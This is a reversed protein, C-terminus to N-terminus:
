WRAGTSRVIHAWPVPLPSLARDTISSSRGVGSSALVPFASSSALDLGAGKDSQEEPLVVERGLKTSTMSGAKAARITSDLGSRGRTAAAPSALATLCATDESPDTQEVALTSPAVSAWAKASTQQQQETVQEVALRAPLDQKATSEESRVLEAAVLKEETAVEACRAKGNNVETTQASPSASSQASNEANRLHHSKFGARTYAKDCYDVLTMECHSCRSYYIYRYKCMTAAPSPTTTPLPSRVDLHQFLHRLTLSRVEAAVYFHPVTQLRPQSAQQRARASM